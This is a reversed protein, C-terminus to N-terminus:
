VSMDLDSLWKRKTAVTKLQDVIIRYCNYGSITKLYFGYQKMGSRFELTEAILDHDDCYWEYRIYLEKIKLKIDRSPLLFEQKLFKEIPSLLDAVM